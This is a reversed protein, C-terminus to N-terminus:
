GQGEEMIYNPTLIGEREHLSIHYLLAEVASAPEFHACNRCQRVIRLGSSVVQSAEFWLNIKQGMITLITETSIAIIVPSIDKGKFDLVTATETEREM